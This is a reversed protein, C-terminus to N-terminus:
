SAISAIRAPSCGYARGSRPDLIGEGWQRLDDTEIQFLEDRPFTELVNLLAKGDHSAAPYGSLELVSAM